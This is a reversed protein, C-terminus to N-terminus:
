SLGLLHDHLQDPLKRGGHLIHDYIFRASGDIGRALKGRLFKGIKVHSLSARSGDRSPQLIRQRLQHLDIGLGDAHALILVVHVLLLQRLGQLAHHLVAHVPHAHIQIRGGRRQQFINRSDCLGDRFIDHLVSFGVASEGAPFLKQFHGLQPRLGKLLARAEKADLVPLIRQVGGAHM